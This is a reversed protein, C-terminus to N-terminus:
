ATYQIMNYTNFIIKKSEEENQTCKNTKRKKKETEKQKTM